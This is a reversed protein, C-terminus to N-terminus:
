SPSPVVWRDTLDEIEARLARDERIPDVAPMWGPLDPAPGDARGEARLHILQGLALGLISLITALHRTQGHARRAALAGMSVVDQNDGNTPISSTAAMQADNRMEAVLATATLQAGGFGSNPGPEWALLPPAGGNQDPSLLVDLQREALVGAQTLAENLADAAFAIQQGQFNGGHLVDAGDTDFVPNDTAGNLEVEALDRAHRLQERVAGLIQPACRLSYVEQLPREASPRAGERTAVDRIAAASQIQGSHGRARHLGEGLAERSCGLLRYILGTLAEARELLRRGRAVALAAYATMFATGNVLGLADRRGLRVPARGIAELAEAADRLEGDSTVVSGEGTCARAIHALPTLDGSAGLSGIEPVAPILGSEFVEAVADVLAPRVASHGQALTQLRVIMTGRVLPPPAFSGAGAGLHAILKRGRDDRFSAESGSSSEEEPGVEEDVLPGLGTTVGYVPRGAERARELAARSSALAAEAASTTRLRTHEDRSATEVDECSLTVDPGIRLAPTDPASSTSM